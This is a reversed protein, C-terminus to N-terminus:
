KTLPYTIGLTIVYSKTQNNTESFFYENPRTKIVDSLGFYQRADLTLGFGNDFHYDYGFGFFGSWNAKAKFVEQLAQEIFPDDTSDPASSYKLRDKVNIGLQMGTNLHIGGLIPNVSLLPNVRFGLAANFYHYDFTLAYSTQNIDNYLLSAGGKIYSLEPQVFVPVNPIKTAVSFYAVGGNRPNEKTTYTQPDYEKPILMRTLDSTGTTAIGGGAGFTWQWPTIYPDDYRSQAYSHHAICLLLFFFMAKLKPSPHAVHQRNPTVCSQVTIYFQAPLLGPLLTIISSPFQYNKM